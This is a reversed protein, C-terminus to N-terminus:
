ISRYSSQVLTMTCGLWKLKYQLMRSSQMHVCRPATQIRSRSRPFPGASEFSSSATTCCCISGRVLVVACKIDQVSHPAKNLQLLQPLRRHRSYPAELGFDLDSASSLSFPSWWLGVEVSLVWEPVDGALGGKHQHASELSGFRFTLSLRSGHALNHLHIAAARSLAASLMHKCMARLRLQSHFCDNFSRFTLELTKNAYRAIAVHAAQLQM